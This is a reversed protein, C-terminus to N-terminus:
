LVKKLRLSSAFQTLIFFIPQYMGAANNPRNLTELFSLTGANHSLLGAANQSLASANVTELTPPRSISPLEDNNNYRVGLHHSFNTAKVMNSRSAQNEHGGQSGSAM